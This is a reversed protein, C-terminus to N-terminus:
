NVIWVAQKKAMQIVKNSVRGIFFDSIKNIGKRGVMITGIGEHESEEIIAMARSRRGTVIRSTILDPSVGAKILRDRIEELASRIEDRLMEEVEPPLSEESRIAHFLHLQYNLASLNLAAFDAVQRAYTSLDIAMLIKGTIPVDRGVVALPIDTLATILKVAVSGLNAGKMLGSGKRGIMVANYGSRAEKVIDRAIGVKKKRLVCKIRSPHLGAGILAAQARELFIECRRKENLEWRQVESFSKAFQPDKGLDRYAQPMANYVTFLVLDIDEQHFLAVGSIYKITEFSQRSGDLAVLLRKNAQAAMEKRRPHDTNVEDLRVM